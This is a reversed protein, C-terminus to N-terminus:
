KKRKEWKKRKYKKKESKKETKTLYKNINVFKESKPAIPRCVYQCWIWTLIQNRSNSLWKREEM